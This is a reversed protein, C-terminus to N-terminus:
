FSFGQQLPVPALIGNQNSNVLHLAKFHQRDLCMLQQKAEWYYRGRVYRKNNSELDGVFTLWAKYCDVLLKTIIAISNYHQVYIFHTM